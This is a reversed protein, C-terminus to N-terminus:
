AIHPTNKLQSIISWIAERVMKRNNLIQNNSFRLVTWGLAALIATNRKDLFRWKPTRHSNGNHSSGDAEIGLHLHPIAIDLKYCHPYGDKPKKNTAVPYNWISNPCFQLLWREALTPGTGNGGRRKPQHGMEKLKLSVKQRIVARFMPNKSTMRLSRALGIEPRESFTKINTERIKADRAAKVEPLARHKQVCSWGCFKKCKRKVPNGCFACLKM